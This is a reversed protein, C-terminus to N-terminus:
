PYRVSVKVCVSLVPLGAFVFWVGRVHARVRARTAQNTMGTVIQPPRETLPIYVIVVLGAWRIAL